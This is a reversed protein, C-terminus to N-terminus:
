DIIKSLDQYVLEPNNPDGSIMLSLGRLEAGFYGKGKTKRINELKHWENIKILGKACLEDAQIYVILYASEGEERFDALWFRVDRPNRSSLQNQLEAQYESAHFDFQDFIPNNNTCSPRDCASILIMLLLIFYPYITITYKM